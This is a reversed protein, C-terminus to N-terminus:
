SQAVCNKNLAVQGTKLPIAVYSRQLVPIRGTFIVPLFGLQCGIEELVMRGLKRCFCSSVQRLVFRFMTRSNEYNFVMSKVPLITNM